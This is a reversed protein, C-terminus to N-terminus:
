KGFLRDAEREDPLDELWLPVPHALRSLVVDVADATFPTTVITTPPPYIVRYPVQEDSTEGVPVLNRSSNLKGRRRNPMPDFVDILGFENLAHIAELYTDESLGYREWRITEGLAVGIDKKSSRPQGEMRQTFEVIALFTAIEGPELVLHWGRAFFARPVRVTEPSRRDSPVTYRRGTNAESNLIWDKFRGAVPNPGTRVLGAEHLVSLARNLARGRERNTRAPATPKVHLGCLKWWPAFEPEVFVNPHKNDFMKGAEFELHAVYIASLLVRLASNKRNILRTAPPRTDLDASRDYKEGPTRLPRKPNLRVFPTRIRVDEFRAEEYKGGVGLLSYEKTAAKVADKRALLAERRATRRTEWGKLVAKTYQEQGARKAQQEATFKQAIVRKPIASAGATDTADGNEPEDPDDSQAQDVM